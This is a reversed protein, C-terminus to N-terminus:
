YRFGVILEPGYLVPVPGSANEAFLDVNMRAGVYIGHDDRRGWRVVDIDARAYVGYGLAGMGEGTTARVILMAGGRIGGGLRLYPLARYMAELGFSYQQTSLGNPTSGFGCDFTAYGSIKNTQAGIGARYGTQDISLGYLNLFGYDLENTFSLRVRADEPPPAEIAPAPVPAPADQALAAQGILFVALFGPILAIRKM